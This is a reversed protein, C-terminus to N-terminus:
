KKCRRLIQGWHKDYVFLWDSPFRRIFVEIADVWKQTTAVMEGAVIGDGFHLVMADATQEVTAPLIPVKCKAAFRAPWGVLGVAQGFVEVRVTDKVKNIPEDPKPAKEIRDVVGVVIKGERLAKLVARAVTSGDTNRVDVVDCGLQEYYSYQSAARAKKATARILMLTPYRSALARVTAVSAHCHAMVMLAGGKAMIGDLRDQDPIQLLRDIDSQPGFRLTEMRRLGRVFNRAFAAHLKRPPTDGVIASLAVSTPRFPVKPIYYLGVLVRYFLGYSLDQVWNPATALNRSAGEFAFWIRDKFKTFSLKM